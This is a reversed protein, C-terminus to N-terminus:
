LGGFPGLIEDVLFTVDPLRQPTISQGRRFVGVHQYKGNAPDTHVVLVDKKVHILWYEPIGTEAYLPAKVNTDYRVTTHSVEIALLIDDPRPHSDTYFDQRFKLIKLDPMPQSYSDLVAPNQVSIIFSGGLRSVFLHNLRNVRGAHPPGPPPMEFIEGRILEFRGDERFIGAESMRMFEDVTFLKKSVTETAM